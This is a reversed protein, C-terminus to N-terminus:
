LNKLFRRVEDHNGLLCFIASEKTEVWVLRLDLSIRVEFTKGLANEYLKKVRLGYSAEGTEFYQKLAELAKTTLIQKTRPLREFTKQFASKFVFNRPM